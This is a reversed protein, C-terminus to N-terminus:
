WISIAVDIAFKIPQLVRNAEVIFDGLQFSEPFLESEGPMTRPEVGSM